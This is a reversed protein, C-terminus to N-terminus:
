PCLGRFFTIAEELSFVVATKAGAKAMWLLEGLQETTAKKGPRKVELGFAIGRFVGVFDPIGKRSTTPVDMRKRDWWCHHSQTKLYDEIAEQIKNEPIKPAEDSAVAQKGRNLRMQMAILDAETFSM